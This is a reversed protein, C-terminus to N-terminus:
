HGPLKLTTNFSDDDFTTTGRVLSPGHDSLALSPDVCPAVSFFEPSHDARADSLCTSLEFLLVQGLAPRLWLPWAARYFTM